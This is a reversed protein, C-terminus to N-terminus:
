KEILAPESMEVKMVGIKLYSDQKKPQAAEYARIKKNITKKRHGIIKNDQGQSRHFNLSQFKGDFTFETLNTM